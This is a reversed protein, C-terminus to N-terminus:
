SRPAVPSRVQTTLVEVAFGIPSDGGGMGGGDGGGGAARLEGGGEDGGGATSADGGGCDGREGGGRDGDGAAAPEFEADAGVAFTCM